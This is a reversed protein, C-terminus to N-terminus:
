PRSVEERRRDDSATDPIANDILVAVIAAALVLTVQTVPAAEAIAAAEDLLPQYGNEGRRARVRALIMLASVRAHTFGATPLALIMTATSAADDWRGRALAAEAALLTLWALSSELGRERCFALGPEIYREALVWERRAALVAAARVYVREVGPEDGAQEALERSRDLKDLGGLGGTRLQATGVINLTDGIADLCGVREALEMAREGWRFAEDDIGGSVGQSGGGVDIGLSSTGAVDITATVRAGDGGGAGGGIGGLLVVSLSSVGAPVPFLYGTGPTAFTVSCTGTECVPSGAAASAPGAAVVTVGAMGSGALAGATVWAATKRRGM